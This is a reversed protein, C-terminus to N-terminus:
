VIRLGNVFYEGKTSDFFVVPIKNKNLLQVQISNKVDTFTDYCSGKGYSVIVGNENVGDFITTHNIEQIYNYLEYFEVCVDNMFKEVDINEDSYHIGDVVSKIYADFGDDEAQDFVVYTGSEDSFRRLEKIEPYDELVSEYDFTEVWYKGSISWVGMGSWSRELDPQVTKMEKFLEILRKHIEIVIEYEVKAIRAEYQKLRDKTKM